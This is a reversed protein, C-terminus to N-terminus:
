AGERSMESTPLKSYEIIQSYVFESVMQQALSGKHVFLKAIM